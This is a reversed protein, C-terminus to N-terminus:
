RGVATDKEVHLTLNKKPRQSEAKTGARQKDGTAGSGFLSDGPEAIVVTDDDLFANLRQFMRRVTIKAGPVPSFTVSLKEHGQLTLETFSDLHSYIIDLEDYDHVTVGDGAEVAARDGGIVIVHRVTKFTPLLPNLLPVLTADVLLVQDEAHNAIYTLQDPFLRINLTHLM